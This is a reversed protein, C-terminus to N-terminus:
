EEDGGVRVYWRMYVGMCECVCGYVQVCVCVWISVCVCVCVCACVREHMWQRVFLLQPSNMQDEGIFNERGKAKM